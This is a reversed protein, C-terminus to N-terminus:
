RFTYHFCNHLRQLYVLTGFLIDTSCYLTSFLFHIKNLLQQFWFETQINLSLLQYLSGEYKISECVTLITWNAEMCKNRHYPLTSYELSDRWLVTKFCIQCDHSSLLMRKKPDRRLTEKLLHTCMPTCIPTLCSNLYKRSDCETSNQKIAM